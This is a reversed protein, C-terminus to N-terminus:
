KILDGLLSPNKQFESFTNDQYGPLNTVGLDRAVQDLDESTERRSDEQTLFNMVDKGTNGAFKIGGRIRGNLNDSESLVLGWLTGGFVLNGLTNVEDPTLKPFRKQFWRATALAQSVNKTPEKSFTKMAMRQFRPSGLMKEVIIYGLGTTGAGILASGTVGFTYLGAVATTMMRMAFMGVTGGAESNRQIKALHDVVHRLRPYVQKLIEVGDKNSLYRKFTAATQGGLLVETTVDRLADMHKEYTAKPNKSYKSITKINKLHERILSSNGASIAAKMQRQTDSAKSTLSTIKPDTTTKAFESFRADVKAAEISMALKDTDNNDVKFAVVGGESAQEVELTATPSVTGIGQNANSDIYIVDNASAIGGYALTGKAM